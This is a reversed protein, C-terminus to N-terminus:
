PAENARHGPDLSANPVHQVRVGRVAPGDPWALVAATNGKVVKIVKQVRKRGKNYRWRRVATSRGAGFTTDHGVGRATWSAQMGTAGSEDALEVLRERLATSSGVVHCKMHNAQCTRKAFARLIALIVIPLGEELTHSAGHLRFSVDDVLQRVRVGAVSSHAEKMGEYLLARTAPLAQGCGAIIGGSPLVGDSVAGEFRIFRPALYEEIAMVLLVLPYELVEASEIVDHVAVLAYFKTLGM